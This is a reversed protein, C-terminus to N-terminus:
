LSRGAPVLHKFDGASSIESLRRLIFSIQKGKKGDRYSPHINFSIKIFLYAKRRATCYWRCQWTGPQSMHAWLSPSRAGLVWDQPSQIRGQEHGECSGAVRQGRYSGRQQFDTRKLSIQALFRLDIQLNHWRWQEVPVSDGATLRVEWWASNDGLSLSYCEGDVGNVLLAELTPKRLVSFSKKMVVHKDYTPFNFLGFLNHSKESM